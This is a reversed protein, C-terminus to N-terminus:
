NGPVKATRGGTHNSTISILGTASDLTVTCQHNKAQVVVTGGSSPMGYGDFSVAALGGFNATLADLSYPPQSFDVSYAQAPRDLDTVAASTSYTLGTVSLTQATSTLRATHRVLELDSKVRRAALEVRHFLLSDFFRPAAVAGFISMILVVIALETMSFAARCQRHRRGRARM